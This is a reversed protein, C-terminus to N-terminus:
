ASQIVGKQAKLELINRDEVLIDEFYEGVVEEKYQVKLPAQANLGQLKLEKLLANEYVKELFGSGLEKYVEYICGRIRYSLEEEQLM